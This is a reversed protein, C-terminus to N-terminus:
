AASMEGAGVAGAIKGPASEGAASVATGICTAGVAGVFSRRRM